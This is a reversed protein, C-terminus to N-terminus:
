VAGFCGVLNPPPYPIDTRVTMPHGWPGVQVEEYYFPKNVRCHQSWRMMQGECCVNPEGGRGCERAPADNFFSQFGFHIMYCLNTVGMQSGNLLRSKGDVRYEVRYALDGCLLCVCDRQVRIEELTWLDEYENQVPAFCDWQGFIRPYIFDRNYHGIGREHGTTCHCLRGGRDKRPNYRFHWSM